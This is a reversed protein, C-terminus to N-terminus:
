DSSLAKHTKSKYLKFQTHIQIFIKSVSGVVSNWIYKQHQDTNTQIFDHNKRVNNETAATKPIGSLPENLVSTSDRQFENLPDYVKTTQIFKNKM